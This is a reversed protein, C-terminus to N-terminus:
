ASHEVWHNRAEDESLHFPALLALLEPPWSQKRMDEPSVAVLILYGNMRMAGEDGYIDFSLKMSTTGIESVYVVVRLREDLMPPSTFEMHMVRRPLGIGFRTLFTRYPIGISRFLESEGLEFFRTYADYRIIGAPDVDGWRVFEHIVFPATSM